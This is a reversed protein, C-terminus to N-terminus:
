HAVGTVFRRDLRNGVDTHRAEVDAAGEYRRGPDRLDRQRGAAARVLRGRPRELLLEPRLRVM